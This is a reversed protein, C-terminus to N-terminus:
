SGIEFWWMSPLDSPFITRPSKIISIFSYDAFVQSSRPLLNETGKGVGRKEWVGLIEPSGPLLARSPGMRRPLGQAKKPVPIM